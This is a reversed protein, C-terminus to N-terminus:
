LNFWIYLLNSCLNFTTHLDILFNQAYVIEPCSMCSMINIPIFLQLYKRQPLNTILKYYPHFPSALNPLWKSQYFSQFILWQLLYPHYSPALAILQPECLPNTDGVPQNKHVSPMSTEKLNTRKFILPNIYGKPQNRLVNYHIDTQLM